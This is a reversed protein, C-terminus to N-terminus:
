KHGGGFSRRRKSSMMRSSIESARAAQSEQYKPLVFKVKRINRVVARTNPDINNGQLWHKLYDFDYISSRLENVQYYVSRYNYTNM